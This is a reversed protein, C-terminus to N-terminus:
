HITGTQVDHITFRILFRDEAYSRGWSGDNWKERRMNLCKKRVQQIIRSILLMMMIINGTVVGNGYVAICESFVTNM